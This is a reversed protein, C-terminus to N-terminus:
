NNKVYSKGIKKKISESTNLGDHIDKLFSSSVWGSLGHWDQVYWWGNDKMELVKVIDGRNLSLEHRGERGIFKAICEYVAITKDKTDSEVNEPQDPKKRYHM